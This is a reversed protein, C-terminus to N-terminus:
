RRSPPSAGRLRVSDPPASRPWVRHLVRRWRPAPAADEIEAPPGPARTSKVAVVDVRRRPAAPWGGGVREPRENSSIESTPPDCWDHERDVEQRERQEEAVLGQGPNRGNGVPRGQGMARQVAEERTAERAEARGLEIAPDVDEATVVPGRVRVAALALVARQERQACSVRAFHACERPDLRQLADREDRVAAAEHADTPHARVVRGTLGRAEPGHGFDRTEIGFRCHPGLHGLQRARTRRVVGDGHRPTDHHDPAPREPVARALEAVLREHEVLGSPARDRRREM